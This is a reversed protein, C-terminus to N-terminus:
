NLDERIYSPPHIYRDGIDLPAGGTGEFDTYIHSPNHYKDSYILSKYITFM